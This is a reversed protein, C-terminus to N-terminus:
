LCHGFGDGDPILAVGRSIARDNLEDWTMKGAEPEM